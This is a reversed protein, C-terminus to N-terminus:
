SVHGLSYNFRWFALYPPEVDMQWLIDSLEGYHILDETVMHTLATEVSIRTDPTDGWPIVVESELLEPTLKELYVETMAEVRSMFLRLAEFDKFEDFIPDIWDRFRGPLIYNIWRDEVVTLHLFIDRMSDFSAGRFGVVENWPLTRLAEFYLLRVRHNYRVLERIVM